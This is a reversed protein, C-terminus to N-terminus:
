VTLGSSIEDFSDDGNTVADSSSHEHRAKGLSVDAMSRHPGDVDKAPTTAASSGRGTQPGSSTFIRVEGVDDDAGDDDLGVDGVDIQAASKTMKLAPTRTQPSLQDDDGEHPELPVVAPSKLPRAEHDM